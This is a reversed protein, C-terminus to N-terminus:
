VSWQGSLDKVFVKITKSGDTNAGAAVLDNGKITVTTVQGAKYNGASGVTNISGNTSPLTSGTSEQADTASVLKVKYETFDENSTFTFSTTDKGVNKSIRAVDPATVTVTPITTDLSISNEAISSVNHVDDRVKVRITKFGDTASLKIQPAASYAIWKSALEDAGISANYAPDVDGWILMQFGSKDADDVSIALSVLQASTFVAGGAIVVRPNTPAQTDLTIYIFNAMRDDGKLRLSPGM